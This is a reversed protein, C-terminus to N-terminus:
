CSHSSNAHGTATKSAPLVVGVLLDIGVLLGLTGLRKDKHGLTQAPM